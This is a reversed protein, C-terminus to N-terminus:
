ALIVGSAASAMRSSSRLFSASVAHCLCFQRPVAEMHKLCVCLVRQLLALLHRGHQDAGTRAANGAACHLDVFVEFRFTLAAAQRDIHPQLVVAILFVAQVHLQASAVAETFHPRQHMNFRQADHIDMYLRLVAAFNQFSGNQAALDNVAEYIMQIAHRVGALLINGEVLPLVADNQLVAACRIRLIDLFIDCLATIGAKFLRQKFHGVLFDAFRDGIGPQASAAAATERGAALPVAGSLLFGVGLVDDAVAVLAVGACKHVAGNHLPIGM